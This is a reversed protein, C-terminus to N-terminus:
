CVDWHDSHVLAVCRIKLLPCLQRMRCYVLCPSHLPLRRLQYLSQRFGRQSLSLISLRGDSSCIVLFPVFIKITELNCSTVMGVALTFRALYQKGANTGRKIM